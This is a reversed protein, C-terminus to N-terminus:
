EEEDGGADDNASDDDKFQEPDVYRGITSSVSLITLNQNSM